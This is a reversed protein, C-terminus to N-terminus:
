PYPLILRDCVHVHLHLCYLPHYACLLLIKAFFYKSKHTQIDKRKNFYGHGSAINNYPHGLNEEKKSSVTVTGPLVPLCTKSAPVVDHKQHADGLPDSLQCPKIYLM